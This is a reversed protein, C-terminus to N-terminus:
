KKQRVLKTFAPSAAKDFADANSTIFQNISKSSGNLVISSDKPDISAQLAGSKVNRLFVDYSPLYTRVTNGDRTFRAFFYDAPKVKDNLVNMFYQSGSQRLYLKYVQVVEKPKENALEVSYLLMEGKAQDVVKIYVADDEIVWAGQWDDAKLPVAQEGVLQLSTVTDCGALFVTTLLLLLLSKLINM